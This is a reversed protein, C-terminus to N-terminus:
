IELKISKANAILRILAANDKIGLRKRLEELKDSMEEKEQVDKCTVRIEIYAM